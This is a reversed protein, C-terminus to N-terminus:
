KRRNPSGNRRLEEELAKKLYINFVIPSLSCGIYQRLGKTVEIPHSLENGIKVYAVNDIGVRKIYKINNCKNGHRGYIEM